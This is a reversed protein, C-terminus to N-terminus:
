VGVDGFGFLHGLFLTLIVASLMFLGMGGIVLLSYSLTVFGSVGRSRFIYVPFGVFFLLVLVWRLLGGIREGREEADLFCWWIGLILFPIGVIFDGPTEEEPLFSAMMGLIASYGFLMWVVRRKKAAFDVAKAEAGTDDLNPLEEIMGVRVKGSARSERVLACIVRPSIQGECIGYSHSQL